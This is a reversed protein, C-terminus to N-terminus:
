RSIEDWQKEVAGTPIGEGSRVVTQGRYRLRTMTGTVRYCMINDTEAVDNLEGLHYNHLMEHAMVEFVQGGTAGSILQLDTALGGLGSYVTEGLPHPTNIHYPQTTDLTIENTASNVHKILILEGPGSAPGITKKDGSNLRSTNDLRIVADGVAVPAVLRWNKRFKKVLGIRVQGTGKLANANKIVSLEPNGGVYYYDLIGNHNKDYPLNIGTNGQIQDIEIVAQRSINNLNGKLQGLTPNTSPVTGSPATSASDFIRYYDLDFVKKKYLEVHLVRVVDGTDSGVRIQLLASEKSGGANKGTIEVSTTAATMPVANNPVTFKSPDSSTAWFSKGVFPKVNVDAFTTGAKDVSIYKDASWPIEDYGFNNRTQNKAIGVRPVTLFLLRHEETADRIRNRNKDAWATVRFERNAPFLIPSNWVAIVPPNSFDGNTPTTWNGPPGGARREIEWRLMIGIDSRSVGAPLWSLSIDVRADPSETVALTNEAPTTDQVTADERMNSPHNHDTLTMRDLVLVNVNLMRHALATEDAEMTGSKDWDFWAHVEFETNPPGSAPTNWTVSVPGESFDGSTRSWEPPVTGDRNVIKWRLYIGATERSIDAPAWTLNTNMRVTGGSDRMLLLTNDSPTADETTEDSKSNAENGHETLTLRVLDTVTMTKFRIVVNEARGKIVAYGSVQVRGPKEGRLVCYDYDETLEAITLGVPIEAETAFNVRDTSLAAEAGDDTSKVGLFVKAVVAGPEIGSFVIKMLYMSGVPLYEPNMRCVDGGFEFIDKDDRRRRAEPYAEDYEQCFIMEAEGVYDTDAYKLILSEEENTLGGTKEYLDELFSDENRYEEDKLEELAAVTEESFGEDRLADLTLGTIRFRIRGLAFTHVNGKVPDCVYGFNKGIDLSGAGSLGSVTGLIRDDTGDGDRDILETGEYPDDIDVIYVKGDYASVYALREHPSVRM